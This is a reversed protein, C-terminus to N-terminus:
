LKRPRLEALSISNQEKKRTGKKKPNNGWVYATWSALNGPVVNGLMKPERVQLCNLFSIYSVLPYSLLPSISGGQHFREHFSGLSFTLLGAQNKIRSQEREQLSFTVGNPLTLPHNTFHLSTSPYADPTNSVPARAYTAEALSFATLKQCPTLM